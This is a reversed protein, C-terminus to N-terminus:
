WRGTLRRPVSRVTYWLGRPTYWPYFHIVSVAGGVIVQDNSTSADAHMAVTLPQGTAALTRTEQEYGVSSILLVANGPLYADITFRGDANTSCGISTGKVMVTAGPLAEQTAVDIVRGTIHQTSPPEILTQAAADSMPAAKSETAKEGQPLQQTAARSGGTPVPGGSHTSRLEQSRAATPLLGGLTAAALVWARWRPAAVPAHVLARNLQEARFRGCVRQGAAQRLLALVEADTRQSFDTVTHQCAACYRGQATPTM